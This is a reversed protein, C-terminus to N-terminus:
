VERVKLKIVPRRRRGKAPSGAAIAADMQASADVDAVPFQSAPRLAGCGAKPRLPAGPPELYASQPQAQRPTVPRAADTSAADDSAPRGQTDVPLPSHVAGEGGSAKAASTKRKKAARRRKTGGDSMDDHDADHDDSSPEPDHKPHYSKDATSTKRKKDPNSPRFV